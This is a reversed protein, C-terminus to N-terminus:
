LLYVDVYRRSWQGMLSDYGLDIRSGKILGGTDGAIATGYGPIYLRSRLPIVKPDVAVVGFGQKMGTATIMDCGECTSDYSTALFQELKCWYQIEGDPTSFSRYIKKGGRVRIEDIPNITETRDIDSEYLENDYYIYKTYVRKEGIIGKQTVEEESCADKELDVERKVVFDLTQKKEQIEERFSTTTVIEVPYDMINLQAITSSANVSHALTSNTIVLISIFIFSFVKFKGMHTPSDSSLVTLTM